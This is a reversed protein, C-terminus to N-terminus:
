FTNGFTVELFVVHSGFNLQYDPAKSKGLPEYKHSVGGKAYLKLIADVVQLEEKRENM